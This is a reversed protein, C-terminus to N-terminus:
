RVSFSKSTSEMLVPQGKGADLWVQELLDGWTDFQDCYVSGTNCPMNRARGGAAETKETDQVALFEIYEKNFTQYKLQATVTINGKPVPFTYTTIDWNQGDAYVNDKAGFLNDKTYPVLFAGDKEYAAKIFGKPPIRNDKEIYNMLVFHFEKEKHSVTGDKNADIISYGGVKFDKYGDALVIQEYVRTQPTRVLAGDTSIVGDQWIVTGASNKATIQIWMQRGEAFGTPLKHDTLNTVKVKVTATGKSASASTIELNAANQMLLESRARADQYANTRYPTVQSDYYYPAGNWVEDVAGWIRDLGPYIMWTQAGQFQMKIHCDICKAGGSRTTRWYWETYTREIPHLYGIQPTVVGNVSKRTFIAPNTVDHCTWCIDASKQFDSTPRILYNSFPDYKNMFYGGSGNSLVRGDYKSYRKSNDEQRHCYSCQIGEMDAESDSTIDVQQPTGPWGPYEQFKSGWFQGKLYPFHPSQPESRGEMWGATFHCRLCLDATVPLQDAPLLTIAGGTQCAPETSPDFTVPEYLKLYCAVKRATNLGVLNYLDQNPTDLGRSVAAILLNVFDKNAVSLTAFFAPDRAANGMMMGKWEYFYRDQSGQGGMGVYHQPSYFGDVIPCLDQGWSNYVPGQACENTFYEDDPGGFGRPQTSDWDTINSASQVPGSWLVMCAFILSIHFIYRKM